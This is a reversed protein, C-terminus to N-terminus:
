IQYYTGVFVRVTLFETCSLACNKLLEPLNLHGLPPRPQLTLILGKNSWCCTPPLSLRKSGEPRINEPMLPDPPGPSRRSTLRADLYCLLVVPFHLAM